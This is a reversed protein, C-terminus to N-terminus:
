ELSREESYRGKQLAEGVRNACILPDELIAYHMMNPLQYYGGYPAIESVIKALNPPAQDDHEGTLTYVACHSKEIASLAGPRSLALQTQAEILHSADDAMSLILDFQSASMRIRQSELRKLLANRGGLAKVDACLAARGESKAPDDAMPNLGFLLLTANETLVDAHHAAVIAGLSFGCIIDNKGITTKFYDRYDNVSPKSLEVNHRNSQPVALINLLQDFIASTCLTGPLLHWQRGDQM